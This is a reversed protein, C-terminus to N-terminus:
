GAEVEVSVPIGNTLVDFVASRKRSQEVIARLKDPPADGQIRFSIRVDQFGNRVGDDIGLLGQLDVDGEITSEVSELRIGRAAAINAIGSTLCGALAHLVYELANPAEDTGCLVAPHDADFRYTRKHEHTTGAGSFDGMTTRNHTGSLWENRARFQFQALAPVEAVHGLTAFLTPTDVGNLPLPQRKPLLAATQANAM